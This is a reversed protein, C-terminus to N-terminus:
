FHAFRSNKLEMMETEYPKGTATEMMAHNASPFVKYTVDPNGSEKFIEQFLTINRQTDTYKDLAGAVILVPV